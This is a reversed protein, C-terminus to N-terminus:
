YRAYANVYAALENKSAQTSLVVYVQSFNAPDTINAYSAKALQLRNSEDSVLEILRKAQATTFYNSTTAFVNTLASMKAGPAWQSQVNKLIENYAADSIPSKISNNYGNSNNYGGNSSNNYSNVYAILENRSAQSTLVDNLQSFNAPDTINRYSSKALQLRNSEGSVLLILQKAQATTFYNNTNAFANTLASMKGGPLFQKQVDRYIINFSADSMPTHYSNNHDNNYGGNNNYGNGNSHNSNYTSVYNQLETRAAQTTLLDNLQSFNAPDTITQYSLKVLQLRSSQLTIAQILEKAQATTFFNNVNEFANTVLTKKTATRWEKKVTQLLATFSANSMPTKYQNNANRDRKKKTESLQVSGDNSVTIQLDYGSRTNFTTTTNPRNNNNNQNARGLQLTHQGTQLDTITITAPANNTIVSTTNGSYNKGDVLLQRNKNGNVTITVTSGSNSNNNYQAFVSLATICNVLFILIKKM